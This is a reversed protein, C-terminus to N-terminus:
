PKRAFDELRTWFMRYRQLVTRLEETGAGDKQWASLLSHQWEKVSAVFAEVSDDVLGAAVEVSARPDDVFMAQIEHWRGAPSTSASAVPTERASEPEASPASVAATRVASAADATTGIGPDEPGASAPSQLGGAVVPGAPDSTVKAPVIQADEPVRQDHGPRDIPSAM